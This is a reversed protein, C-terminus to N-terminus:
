TILKNRIAMTCPGLIIIQILHQTLSTYKDNDIVRYFGRALGDEVILLEEVRLYLLLLLVVRVADETFHTTVRRRERHRRLAAAAVLLDGHPAAVVVQAHAPVGLHLGCDHLSGCEGGACM